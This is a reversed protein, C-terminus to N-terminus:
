NLFNILIYVKEACDFQHEEVGRISDRARGVATHGNSAGVEQDTPECFGVARAAHQDVEDASEGHVACGSCQRPGIQPQNARLHKFKAIKTQIFPFLAFKQAEREDKPQYNALADLIFM